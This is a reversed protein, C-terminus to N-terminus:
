RGIPLASLYALAVSRPDHRELDKDPVISAGSKLDSSSRQELVEALGRAMAEPSCREVVLASTGAAESLGGADTVVLKCGCARGELAVIGFPEYRSPVVLCYARRLIDGIQAGDLNGLLKVNSGLRHKLILGELKSREEGDGIMQVTPRLGQDELRGLAEVFIDAGKVM